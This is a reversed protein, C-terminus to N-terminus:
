SGSALGAADTLLTWAPSGDDPELARITIPLVSMEDRQFQTEVGEVPTGRRIVWRLRTTGDDVDVIVMREYVADGVLPPTYQYHSSGLDTVTGGGFALPINVETFQELAFTVEFQENVRKTRVAHATQWAPFEKIEPANKIAVGDPTHYGLGSYTASSLATDENTPVTAGVAAVYVQGTGAVITEAPDNWGGM